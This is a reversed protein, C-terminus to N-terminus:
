HNQVQRELRKWGDRVAHKAKEWGMGSSGYNQEYDRRLEPEVQEYTRGKGRYRNYSSYGTYYAPQYHDYTLGQEVYPQSAYNSRWYDDENMLSRRNLDAREWADRTAHRANEWSLGTRSYNTEYDRQLHPEVESYTRGSEYYRGYGEYGTRYAPQYDNYARGEEVYPRSKYTNQWYEDEVTPNVAEGTSKGILGGIVAGVVGGVIAGVPGGAAGIAAGAAGAGAAGIGTGVPHAGPQGTIPDRNADADALNRKNDDM